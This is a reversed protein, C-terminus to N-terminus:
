KINGNEDLLITYDTIPVVSGKKTDYGTVVNVGLVKIMDGVFKQDNVVLSTNVTLTNFTKSDYLLDEEFENIKINIEKM